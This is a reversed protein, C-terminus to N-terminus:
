HVVRSPLDPSEAAPTGAGDGGAEPRGEGFRAAEAHLAALRDDVYRQLDETPMVTVDGAESVVTQQPKGWGRDLLANSASVQAAAPVLEYNTEGAIRALTAIALPTHVRAAIEVERLVRNKPVSAAM